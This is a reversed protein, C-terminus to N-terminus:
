DFFLQRLVIRIEVIEKLNLTGAHQTLRSKSVTRIQECLAQGMRGRFNVDVRSPWNKNKTTLPVVVITSLAKNMSDHSVIVCPRSGRQESGKVPDLEVLWVEGREMNLIQM